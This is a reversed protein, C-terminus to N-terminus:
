VVDTGLAVGKLEELRELDVNQSRCITYEKDIGAAPIRVHFHLLQNSDLALVVTVETGKPLGAPLDITQVALETVDKAETFDGETLTLKVSAQDAMTTYLSEEVSCPISSNRHILVHNAMNLEKTVVLIGIGHSCVDSVKVEPQTDGQMDAYIAAGLAVAEDPSMDMSPKKGTLKEIENQILPIKSSGGVLVVKGIQSFDLGADRVAKKVSAETRVYLKRVAEELFSRSVTISERVKGVRLPIVTSDMSSLQIKCNEAKLVLEQYEEVYEEDELDIQHTDMFYKCIHDVIAQDFLKGGVGSLGHTSLVKIDMGETHIVTVDFTGGGLDYVMINQPTNERLRSAYYIAAATPENITALLKLGALSAADETAKRQADTFYAPITVVAGEIPEGLYREADQVVKRLIFSSIMEPTYKKGDGLQFEKKRGMYNKVAVVVRDPFIIAQDKATKGVLAKGDEQILVVSPTLRDGERNLIVEPAEKNMHGVVSYTTGLDIGIKM